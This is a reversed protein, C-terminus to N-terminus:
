RAPKSWSRSLPSIARVSAFNRRARRRGAEKISRTSRSRTSDSGTWAVLGGPKRRRACLGDHVVSDGDRKKQQQSQEGQDGVHVANILFDPFKKGAFKLVVDVHELLLDLRFQADAAGPGRKGHCHERLQGHGRDRQDDAEYNEAVLGPVDVFDQLGRDAQNENHDHAVAEKREDEERAGLSLPQNM